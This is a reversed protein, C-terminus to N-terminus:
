FNTHKHLLIYILLIRFTRLFLCHVQIVTLFGIQEVVLLHHHGASRTVITIHPSASAPALTLSLQHSKYTPLSENLRYLVTGQRKLIKEGVYDLRREIFTFQSGLPLSGM